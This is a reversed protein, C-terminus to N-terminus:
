LWYPVRARFRAFFFLAVLWGVVVVGIVVLWNLTSPAQGLLPQRVIDIVHTLPNADAIIRRGGLQEPFYFIPTIWFLVTMANQVMVPVDRFRVSLMGLLVMMWAMSLILLPLTVILYLTNANPVIDFMFFVVVFVVATHGLVIVNRWLTQMVYALLPRKVQVITGAAGIFTVAGEIITTLWFNWVVFGVALYPLYRNYPQNFLLGVLWGMAAVQVALTVSIWLPGLTSRRYRQRIEQLALMHWIRWQFIGQTVDDLALEFDRRRLGFM